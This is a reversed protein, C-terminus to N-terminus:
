ICNKIRRVKPMNLCNFFEDNYKRRETSFHINRNLIFNNLFQHLKHVLDSMLQKGRRINSSQSVLCM